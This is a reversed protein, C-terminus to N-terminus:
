RSTWVRIYSTKNRNILNFTGPGFEECPEGGVGGGEGDCLRVRYGRPVYVSEADDNRLRGLQRQDNRFTGVGFEQATGGQNTNAFVVVSNRNYSPSDYGGGGNGGGNGGGGWNGWGSGSKQVEIFSAQDNYRLNYRGENYEECRGSGRADTGENECFKVKFGRPVIVSSAEDNKLGGFQGAGALYHGVGFFYERGQYDRGEFVTVGNNRVNGGYNGGGGGRGGNGGGGNWGGGRGNWGSGTVRIFSATDQYQLNHNGPGWEECRGEGNNGRGENECLRVRYGNAVYVSSAKDNRLSGLQGRDARYTGVNFSQGSGRGDREEYVAVPGNDWQANVLVPAAALCCTLLVSLFLIRGFNKM